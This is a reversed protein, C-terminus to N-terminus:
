DNVIEEAGYDLGFRVMLSEGKAVGADIFLDELDYYGVEENRDIWYVEQVILASFAKRAAIEAEEDTLQTNVAGQIAKMMRRIHDKM